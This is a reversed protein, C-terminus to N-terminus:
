GANERKKKAESKITKMVTPPALTKPQGMGALTTGFGQSAEV